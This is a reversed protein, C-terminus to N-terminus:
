KASQAQKGAENCIRALIEVAYDLQSEPITLPPVLALAFDGGEGCPLAIVGNRLLAAMAYLPDPVRLALMLGRGRIMNERHIKDGALLGHKSLLSKLYAEKRKALSPAGIRKLERLSALAMACGLPNGLFTQTHLSEGKSAGWSDMVMKTGLCVSIPFGGGMAKGLCILDPLPSRTETSDDNGDTAGQFAFWTGTRGFGTYVEDYILLAGEKDCHERLARLWSASAVRIGGRGQIPEVIVAGIPPNANALSPLPLEGFPAFTVHSGIQGEFPERFDTKHYATPALSGHALGHYGGNFALVGQRGTALVATKLAAQVADSGSCGLIGKPLEPLFTALEELLEVRATDAFADGMAHILPKRLAEEAAKLVSPNSHGLTAVGFGSTLDIFTNGDIDEVTANIASHWVIPDTAAAGLSDARRARRATIAPCEHKSLRDIMSQSKTGPINTVLRPSEKAEEWLQLRHDEDQHEGQTLRGGRADKKLKSVVYVLAVSSVAGLLFTLAQSSSQQPM